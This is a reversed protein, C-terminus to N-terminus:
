QMGNRRLYAFEQQAEKMSKNKVVLDGSRYDIEYYFTGYPIGSMLLCQKPGDDRSFCVKAPTKVPLKVQLPYTRPLKYQITDNWTLTVSHKASETTYFHIPALIELDAPTIKYKNGNYTQIVKMLNSLNRNFSSDRLMAISVPDDSVLDTLREVMRKAGSLVENTFIQTYKGEKEAYVRLVTTTQTGIQESYVTIPGELERVMMSYPNGWTTDTVPIHYRMLSTEGDYIGLMTSDTKHRNKWETKSYPITRGDKFVIISQSFLNSSVFFAFFSTAFLCLLRNM